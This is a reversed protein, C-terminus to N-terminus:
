WWAGAKRRFRLARTNRSVTQRRLQMLPQDLRNFGHETTCSTRYGARAVSDALDRNWTGFPYAFHRCEGFRRRLEEGSRELEAKVEAESLTPLRKHQQTHSGITFGDKAARELEGWGAHEFVEGGKTVYWDTVGGVAGTVVFLTATFGAERLVPLAHDVVCRYGDDFTLVVPRRVAPAAGELMDAARDLSLATYGRVALWAIQERFVDLPVTGRREESAALPLVAHYTLIPIRM